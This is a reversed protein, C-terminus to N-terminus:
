KSARRKQLRDLEEQWRRVPPLGAKEVVRRLAHVEELICSDVLFRSDDRRIAREVDAMCSPMYRTLELHTFRLITLGDLFLARDMARDRSAQAPTREHYAHGDLEVAVVGDFTIFAFDVIYTAGGADVECQPVACCRPLRDPSAWAVDPDGYKAQALGPDEDHRWGANWLAESFLKELHSSGSKAILEDRKM